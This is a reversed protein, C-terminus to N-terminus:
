RARSIVQRIAAPSMWWDQRGGRQPDILAAQIAPTKLGKARLALIRKNRDLERPLPKLKRGRNRCAYSCYVPRRRAPRFFGRRCARCRHWRQELRRALGKCRRSCYRARARSPPVPFPEHCQECRVQPRLQRWTREYCAMSCYKQGRAARSAPISRREGCGLCIIEAQGGYCAWGCYRQDRSPTTVIPRGCRRCERQLRKKRVASRCTVDCYLPRGSKLKYRHVELSKGCAPNACTVMGRRRSARGFCQQSCYRGETTHGRPTFPDGCHECVLRDADM